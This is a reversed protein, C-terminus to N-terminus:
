AAGQRSAAPAPPMLDTIECDLAKALAALTAAEPNKRHGNEMRSVFGKSCGARIALETVTLGAANRRYWLKRGDISVRKDGEPQKVSKGAVSM